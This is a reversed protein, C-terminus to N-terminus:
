KFTKLIYEAIARATKDSIAKDDFRPMAPGPNRMNGVIDAPRDIGSKALDKKHLSKATNIVNGGNLHCVACNKIFAQEGQSANLAVEASVAHCFVIVLLSTMYALAVKKM